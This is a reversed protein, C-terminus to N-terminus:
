LIGLQGNAMKANASDNEFPSEINLDDIRSIMSEDWKELYNLSELNEKLHELNMSKPIVTIGNRITNSLVVQSFNECNLEKIIDNIDENDKYMFRGLNGLPAFAIIKIGLDKYIKVLDKQICMPHIELFVYEPYELELNDCMTLFRRLQREHFNCIGISKVLGTNKVRIMAEWVKQCIANFTIYSTTIPPSAMYYLDLYEIKDVRKETFEISPVTYTKESIFLKNRNINNNLMFNNISDIIPNQIMDNGNREQLDVFRYGLYLANYVIKSMEENTEGREKNLKTGIGILPIEMKNIM